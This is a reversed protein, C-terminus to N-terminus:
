TTVMQPTLTWASAPLAATLQPLALRATAEDQYMLVWAGGGGAGSLKGALAGTDTLATDILRSHLPTELGLSVLEGRAAGMLGPLLADKKAELSDIAERAIEGLRFLGSLVAAEGQARRRALDSVLAKTDSERTVAGTVLVQTPARLPYAEPPTRGPLLAWWGPRLALVTDIGSPTGHFLHEAKWALHDLEALTAAPFFLSALAACLAGSSGFGSALPMQSALTIQCPALAPLNAATRARQFHALLERLRQEYPGLGPLVWDDAEPGTELSLRWPLGLGVAPAGYVAAHEGFLLLKAHAVNIGV